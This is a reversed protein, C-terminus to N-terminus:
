HSLDSSSPWVPGSLSVPLDCHRLYGCMVVTTHLLAERFVCDTLPYAVAASSWYTSFIVLIGFLM